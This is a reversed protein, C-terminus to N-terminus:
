FIIRLLKIFKKSKILDAYHINSTIIDILIESIEDDKKAASILNNLVKENYFYKKFLASYRLDNIFNKESKIKFISIDANIISEALFAGGAIGNYIGEGTIPNVHGAADGIIAWNKGSIPKKFFSADRAFPLLHSYFQKEGLTSIKREKEYQILLTDLMEKPKFKGLQGGVGINLYQNKPFVWLYGEGLTRTKFFCIVLSDRYLKNIHIPHHKIHFGISQGLYEKNIPGIFKQRVISQCGDAGVLFNSFIERNTSKVIYGNNKEKIEQIKEPYFDVNRKAKNLLFHDFKKRMVTFACNKRTIVVKDGQPSQIVFSNITKEKIKKPIKILDEVRSSVAGGCPKERPHSHDFLCASISGEKLNIGFSSGAPGGGIVCVDYREM